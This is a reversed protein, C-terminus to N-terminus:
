KRQVSDHLRHLAEQHYEKTITTAQPAYKHHVVVRSDFFVTLMVKVNSRVQREKKAEPIISTEV